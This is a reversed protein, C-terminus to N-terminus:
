IKVEFEVLLRIVRKVLIRKLSYFILTQWFIMPYIMIQIDFVYSAGRWPYHKWLWTDGGGALVMKREVCIIFGTQKMLPNTKWKMCLLGKSIWCHTDRLLTKNINFLLEWFWTVVLIRRKTKYKIFCQWVTHIFMFCIYTQM